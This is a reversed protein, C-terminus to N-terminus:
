VAEKLKDIIAQIRSNTMEKMRLSMQEDNALEQKVRSNIIEKLHRATRGGCLEYRDCKICHLGSDCKNDEIRGTAITRVLGNEDTKLIELAEQPVDRHKVVELRVELNDDKAYAVLLEKFEKQREAIMRVTEVRAWVSNKVDMNAIDGLYNGIGSEEASFLYGDRKVVFRYERDSDGHFEPFKIVLDIADDCKEGPTVSVTTIKKM